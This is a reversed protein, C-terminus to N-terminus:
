RNKLFSALNMNKLFLGSVFFFFANVFSATVWSPSDTHVWIVLFIVWGKVLDIYSIRHKTQEM